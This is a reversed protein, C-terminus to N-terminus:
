VRGAASELLAGTGRETPRLYWDAGTRVLISGDAASYIESWGAPPAGDPPVVVIDVNWRDLAEIADPGGTTIHAYDAWVPEPFLEFRSDVLYAADPVAWELWSAWTQPAAVRSGARVKDRLAVALDSPAYTLLGARGTLPDSPRWWPLAILIAGVLIGAVVLNLRHARTARGPVTPTATSSGPVLPAVLVPLVTAVLLVAGIPWWAVGRVTWVAIATLGVYLGWDALSLASRGRVLAIAAVAAAAYFLAGTPTLPSTRQWESVQSAIVPSSGIGAAYSWVAPGFPTVVTALVGALFVVFTHRAPRRRLLDDLWAYGLIAPALVFSGHVNAWVLVLVPALWLRRPHAQRDAVLWVLVAFLLIGLLQPRLALAPAMVAFAVLALVAASRPGAGRALAIAVLCAQIGVVIAARLVALLEWGGVRHGLALLAQALWQQDVWPQGAVTFTFSDVAPVQGTSLLLEGARVQYALDVAPLPVLLAILAPLALALFLWLRAFSM